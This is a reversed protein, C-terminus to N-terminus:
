AEYRITMRRKEVKKNLTTCNFSFACHNVNVNVNYKENAKTCNICKYDDPKATCEKLNHKGACLPCTFDTEKCEKVIHGFANCKFCRMVEVHEYVRCISWGIRLKGEVLVRKFTTVDLSVVATFLEKERMKKMECVTIVSSSDFLTKNQDTIAKLLDNNEKFEDEFGVIKIKPKAATPENILYKDGVEDTLKRKIVAVSKEDNCFLVIDGRATDQLNKVPHTVPNVSSKIASKMSKRDTDNKPKVILVHDKRVPTIPVMPKLRKAASLQQQNSYYGTSTPTNTINAVLDSWQPDYEPKRKGGFMAPKNVNQDSNSKQKKIESIDEGHNKLIKEIAKLRELILMNQDNKEKCEDCIWCAGKNKLMDKIFKAQLGSCKSHYIEACNICKVGGGPDNELDFTNYCKACETM